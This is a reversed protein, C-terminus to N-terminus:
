RSDSFFLVNRVQPKIDKHRINRQHLYNVAATLCGFSTRLLSVAENTLTGRLYEALNYEAVPHMLIGVYRINSQM